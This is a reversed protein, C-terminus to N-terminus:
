RDTEEPAAAPGPYAELAEIAGMLIAQQADGYTSLDERIWAAVWLASDTYHRRTGTLDFDVRSPTEEASRDPASNFLMDAAQELKARDEDAYPRQLEVDLVDGLRLWRPSEGRLKPVKRIRAQDKRAERLGRHRKPTLEPPEAEPESEDGRVPAAAADSGQLVKEAAQRAKAMDKEHQDLNLTLLIVPRWRGTMGVVRWGQEGLDDLEKEM